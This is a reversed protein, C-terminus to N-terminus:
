LDVVTVGDGGEHAEGPRFGRIFRLTDLHARVARKLAGTGHGHIVVARSAGRAVLGDLAQDLKELAEEVRLGRLDVREEAKVEERLTAGVRRRRAHGDARRAGDADGVAGRGLPVLSGAPLRMKLSGFVVLVDTGGVELVRGERNGFTPARVYAGAVLSGSGGAVARDGGVETAPEAPERAAEEERAWAVRAEDM